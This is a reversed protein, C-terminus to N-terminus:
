ITAAAPKAQAADAATVPLAISELSRREARVGFAIAALGGLIMMVAGLGLALFVHEYSHTNIM